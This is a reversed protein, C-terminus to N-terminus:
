ADLLTLYITKKKKKKKTGRKEEREREEKELGFLFSVRKKKGQKKRSRSCKFFFVLAGTLPAFVADVADEDPVVRRPVDLPDVRLAGDLADTRKKKKRWTEKGGGGRKKKRGERGRFFVLEKNKEKEM